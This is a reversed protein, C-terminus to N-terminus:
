KYMEDILKNMTEKNAWFTRKTIEIGNTFKFTDDSNIAKPRVHFSLKDSMKPFKTEDGEKFAEITKDYVNKAEEELSKFSFEEILGINKIIKIIRKKGIM